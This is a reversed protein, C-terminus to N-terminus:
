EEDDSALGAPWDIPNDEEVEDDMDLMLGDAIGTCLGVLGIEFGVDGTAAVVWDLLDEEPRLVAPSIPEM